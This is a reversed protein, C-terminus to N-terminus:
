PLIPMNWSTPFTLLTIKSQAPTPAQTPTEPQSYDEPFEELQSLLDEDFYPRDCYPCYEDQISHPLKCKPCITYDDTIELDYQEYTKLQRYLTMIDRNYQLEPLTNLPDPTPSTPLDIRYAPAWIHTYALIDPNIPKPQPYSLQHNLQEEQKLLKYYPKITAQYIDWNAQPVYTETGTACAKIILQYTHTLDLLQVDTNNTILQKTLNQISHPFNDTFNYYCLTVQSPKNLQIITLATARTKTTRIYKTPDQPDKYKIIAEEPTPSYIITKYKKFLQEQKEKTPLTETYYLNQNHINHLYYKTKTKYILPAPEPTNGAYQQNPLYSTKVAKNIDKQM